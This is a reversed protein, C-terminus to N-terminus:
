RCIFKTGNKVYLSGSQPHKVERGQLDYVKGDALAEIKVASDIGTITDDYVAELTTASSDYVLYASHGQVFGRTKNFSGEDSNLMYYDVDYNMPRFTGKFPSQNDSLDTDISLWNGECNLFYCEVGDKLKLVYPLGPEVKNVANFHVKGDIVGTFAYVKEVGYREDMKTVDFGRQLCIANYKSSSASKESYPFIAAYYKESGDSLLSKCEEVNKAYTFVTPYVGDAVRFFNKKKQKIQEATADFDKLDLSGPNFTVRSLNTCGLFPSPASTGQYLSQWIMNVLKLSTCAKFAGEGITDCHVIIDAPLSTCGAFAEEGIKDLHSVFVYKKLLSCGSFCRDGILKVNSGQYVYSLKSCDKFAEASMYKVGTGLSVAELNSGAFAEQGISTVADPIKVMKKFKAFSKLCKNGLGTVQYTTGSYTVQSPIDWGMDPINQLLISKWSTLTVSTGDANVRYQFGDISFQTVDKAFTTQICFFLLATLLVRSLFLYHHKMTFLPINYAWRGNPEM